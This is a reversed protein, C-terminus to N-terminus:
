VGIESYKILNHWPAHFPTILIQDIKNWEMWIFLNRFSAMIGDTEIIEECTKIGEWADKCEYNNELVMLFVDRAEEVKEQIM